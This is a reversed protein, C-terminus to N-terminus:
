VKGWAKSTTERAACDVPVLAAIVRTTATGRSLPAERKGCFLLLALFELAITLLSIGGRRFALSGRTSLFRGKWAPDIAAVGVILNFYFLGPM